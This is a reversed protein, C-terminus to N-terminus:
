FVFCLPTSLTPANVWIPANHLCYSLESLLRWGRIFCSQERKALRRDLHEASRVETIHSLRDYKRRNHVVIGKTLALAGYSQKRASGGELM